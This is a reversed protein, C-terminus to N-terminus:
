AGPLPFEACEFRGVAMHKVNRACLERRKVGPSSQLCERRELGGAAKAEWCVSGDGGWAKANAAREGGEGRLGLISEM